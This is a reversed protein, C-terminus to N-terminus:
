GSCSRFLGLSIFCLKWLLLRCASLLRVVGAVHQLVLLSKFALFASIGGDGVGQSGTLSLSRLNCPWSGYALGILPYFVCYQLLDRLCAEVHYRAWTTWCKCPLMFDLHGGGLFPGNILLVGPIFNLFDVSDFVIKLHFKQSDRELYRGFYLYTMPTSLWTIGRSPSLIVVIPPQVRLLILWFSFYCNYGRENPLGHHCFRRMRVFQAHTSWKLHSSTWIAVM